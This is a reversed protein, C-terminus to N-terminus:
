PTHPLRRRRRTRRRRRRASRPPSPLYSIPSLLYSINGSRIAEPHSGLLRAALSPIRKLINM